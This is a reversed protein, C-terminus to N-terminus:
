QLRAQMESIVDKYTNLLREWEKFKEDDKAGTNAANSAESQIKVVYQQTGTNGPKVIVRTRITNNPFNKMSWATRLYSTEKDAMEIVDFYNTVIGNMIKWADEPTRTAGVTISFNVNAQDSQISSTYAEDTKLAIHENTPPAQMNIQNCFNKIIPVFGAREVIVEVCAGDLIKVSHEGNAVQKGDVKIIADSPTTNIRVVRDKLTITEFLPTQPMGEKNYYTREIPVYGEKRYEVAVNTKSPVVIEDSNDALKKGDVFIQADNPFLKVKVAKDELVIFDDVPSVDRGAQNYYVKTKKYFGPKTVEVTTSSNENIYVYIKKTGIEIGNVFIKADYPEASVTVMRDKLEVLDEKKPDIGKLRQYSKTFPKFGPKKFILKVPFDKNIKIEASGTGLLQEQGGTKSEYINADAPLVSIKMKQANAINAVLVVLLLITIRIKM